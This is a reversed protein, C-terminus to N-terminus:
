ISSLLEHAAVIIKKRQLILNWRHGGIQFWLIGSRIAALLAARIKAQIYTNQLYERQGTIRIKAGLPSIFDTYIGALSYYTQDNNGDSLVATRKIQALREAIHSLTTHNKKLKSALTLVSTAYQLQQLNQKPGDELLQLLKNLGHQISSIEGFVAIVSDPQTNFISNIMCQYDASDCSGTEALQSVLQCSQNIGALAITINHFNKM